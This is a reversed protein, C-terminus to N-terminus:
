VWDYDISVIIANVKDAIWCCGCSVGNTGRTVRSYNNLTSSGNFIFLRNELGKRTWPLRTIGLYISSLLTITILSTLIEIDRHFHQSVIHYCEFM